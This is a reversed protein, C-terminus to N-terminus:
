SVIRLVPIYQLDDISAVYRWESRGMDRNKRRGGGGDGAGKNDAM